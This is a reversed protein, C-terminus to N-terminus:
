FREVFFTITYFIVIGVFAGFVTDTPYHCMYYVRAAMTLGACVVAFELSVVNFHFMLTWFMTSQVSDGSPMSHNKERGRFDFMLAEARPAFLAPRPRSINKKLMYTVLLGLPPSLGLILLNKFSHPILFLGFSFVFAVIENNFSIGFIAMLYEFPGGTITSKHILDSALQDLKFM